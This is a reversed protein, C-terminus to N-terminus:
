PTTRRRKTLICIVKSCMWSTRQGPPEPSVRQSFLEPSPIQSFFVFKEDNEELFEPTTPTLPEPDDWLESVRRAVNQQSSDPAKQPDSELQFMKLLHHAFIELCSSLPM